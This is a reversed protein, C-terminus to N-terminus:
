QCGALLSTNLCSLRVKEAHIAARKAELKEHLQVAQEEVRAQAQVLCQECGYKSSHMCMMSGMRAICAVVCGMEDPGVAQAQIDITM